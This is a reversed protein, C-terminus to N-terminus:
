MSNKSMGAGVAGACAGTVSGLKAAIRDETIERTRYELFVIDGVVWVDTVDNGKGELYGRFVSKLEENTLTRQHTPTSTKRPTSTPTPVLTPSDTIEEM